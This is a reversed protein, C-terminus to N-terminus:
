SARGRLHADYDWVQFAEPGPRSHHADPLAVVTVGLCTRDTSLALKDVRFGGGISRLLTTDGSSLQLSWIGEGSGFLVCSREDDVTLGTLFSPMTMSGFASRMITREIPVSSAAMPTVDSASLVEEWRFVRLAQDTGVCLWRGDGSCALSYPLESGRFASSEIGPRNAAEEANRAMEALQQRQRTLRNDVTREVDLSGDAHFVYGAQELAKRGQENTLPPENFRKGASRLGKEMAERFPGKDFNLLEERLKAVMRQNHGAEHLLKGIGLTKLLRVQAIDFIRLKGSGDGVVAMGSPHSCPISYNANAPFSALRRGDAISDIAINNDSCTVVAREDASITIRCSSHSERAIELVKRAQQLDWVESKWTGGAYAIALYRGTSTGCMEQVPGALEITLAAADLNWSPGIHFLPRRQGTAMSVMTFVFDSGGGASCWAVTEIPRQSGTKEFLLIRAARLKAKEAREEKALAAHRAKEASRDPVHIFDDWGVIDDTEGAMLYEYATVANPLGLLEAFRALRESEFTVENDDNPALLATLEDVSHGATLLPRLLAPDGRSQEQDQESVAGFYDPSSNFQDIRSGGSFYQYVLVDDDHVLVYILHAPVSAALVHATAEDQGNGDPYVSVWGGLAPGILFQRKTKKALAEVAAQIPSRDETRIHVSGYFGGM